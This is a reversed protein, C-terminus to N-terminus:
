AGGLRRIPAFAAAAPVNVKAIRSDILRSGFRVGGYQKPSGGASVSDSWRTAAFEQDESRLASAIAERMPSPRIGFMQLARDDRVVTAHRISDILKRGVRAYVPTVLGLWLSSLRPTLVPVRIMYRRLGRQRAYEVIMDAYSVVDLGGVEFTADGELDITRAAALYELMEGIAIPQA